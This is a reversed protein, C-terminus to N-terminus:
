FTAWVSPWFSFFNITPIGVLQLKLKSTSPKSKPPPHRHNRGRFLISDASPSSSKSLLSSNPNGLNTQHLYFPSLARYISICRPEDIDSLDISPTAQLLNTSTAQSPTTHKTQLLAVPLVLSEMYATISRWDQFGYSEGFFIKTPPNSNLDFLVTLPTHDVHRTSRNILEAHLVGNVISQFNTVFRMYPLIGVLSRLDIEFVNTWSDPVGYRKLSWLQLNRENDINRMAVCLCGGIVGLVVDYHRYQQQLSTPLLIEKIMQQQEGKIVSLYGVVICKDDPQRTLIWHFANNLPVGDDHLYNSYSNTIRYDELSPMYGFGYMINGCSTRPVFKPMPLPFSVDLTPNCIYWKFYPSSHDRKWSMILVLGNSSSLVSFEYQDAGACVDKLRCGRPRPSGTSARDDKINIALLHWNAAVSSGDATTHLLHSKAF